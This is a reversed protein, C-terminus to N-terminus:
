GGVVVTLVATAVVTGLWVATQAWWPLGFGGEQHTRVDEIREDRCRGLAAMAETEGAEAEERAQRESVLRRLSWDHIEWWPEGEALRRPPRWGEPAGDPIWPGVDVPGSARGSADPGAAPESAFSPACMGGCLLAAACAATVRM